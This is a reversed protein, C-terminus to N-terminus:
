FAPDLRVVIVNGELTIEVGSESVAGWVLDTLTVRIETWGDEREMRERPPDILHRLGERLAEVPMDFKRSTGDYGHFDVDLSSGAPTLDCEATSSRLIVARQVALARLDSVNLAFRYTRDEVGFELAPVGTQLLGVDLWGNNFGGNEAWIRRRVALGAVSPAKGKNRHSGSVVHRNIAWIGM